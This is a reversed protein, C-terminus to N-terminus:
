EYLHPPTSMWSSGRLRLVVIRRARRIIDLAGKYAALSPVPPSPQAAKAQMILAALHRRREIERAQERMLIEALLPNHM